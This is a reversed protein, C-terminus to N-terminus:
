SSAKVLWFEIATGDYVIDVLKLAHRRDNQRVTQAIVQEIYVVLNIRAIQERSILFYARPMERM